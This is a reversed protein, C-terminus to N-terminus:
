TMMLCLYSYRWQEVNRDLEKLDDENLKLMPLNIDVESEEEEAM